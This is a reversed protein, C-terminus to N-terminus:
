GGLDAAAERDCLVTADRHLWLVSAPFATTIGSGILRNLASRKAKGSVLLLIKRSQLIEALGLTMGQRPKNTLGRLMAHRRSSASLTAVHVGPVLAKAPENMAIHGNKGLGLICLDIPGNAALWGAMRKCEVAPDIAAGNFGKFRTSRIGLPGLLKVRLDAACSAASGPALGAWEDIQTVRVRRFLGPDRAGQAALLEYTRTPTAGASVCLLLEPRRRVERCIVAAARRSMEEYSSAVRLDLRRNAAAQMGETYWGQLTRVLRIM